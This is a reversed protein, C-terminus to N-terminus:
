DERESVAGATFLTGLGPHAPRLGALRLGAWASVLNATLVPRRITRELAAVHDVTHLATDPLLVADADPDAGALAMELLAGGGVTGVEAATVIGHSRLSTVSIGGDSLFEAFLRAVDDPYTAVVAVRRLGLAQAAAVFALSTSTAPVGAAAALQAVQEHAGTWGFVFSGSTCAWVVAVPRLPALARAGDALRDARGWDLLAEVRHAGSAMATHHVPFAFGPGLRAELVRYDDEASHGPYLIGIPFRM